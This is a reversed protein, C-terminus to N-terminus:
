VREDVVLNKFIKTNIKKRYYEQKSSLKRKSVTNSYFKNEWDTLINKKIVYDLADQGISKTKDKVISAVKTLIKLEFGMGMFKDICKSGVYLRQNNYINRINCLTTIPFHGCPCRDAEESYYVYELEWEKKILDWSDSLSLSSIKSFLNYENKTMQIM